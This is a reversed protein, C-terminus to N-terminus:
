AKRLIFRVHYGNNSLPTDLVYSEDPLPDGINDVYVLTDGVRPNLAPDLGAVYQAVVVNGEGDVVEVGQEFPAKTTQAGAFLANLGLRSRVSKAARDFVPHQM